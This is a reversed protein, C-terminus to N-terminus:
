LQWGLVGEVLGPEWAGLFSERVSVYAPCPCIGITSKPSSAGLWPSWKTDQRVPQVVPPPTPAPPPSAAVAAVVPPQRQCQPDGCLFRLGGVYGTGDTDPGTAVQLHSCSM